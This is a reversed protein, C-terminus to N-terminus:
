DISAPTLKPALLQIVLIAILYASGAMAFIPTYNNHTLKLIFGVFTGFFMMAMAGGFAGIGVVSAVARRPFMDSPLTFLNCSWAQHLATAVSIMAIAAWINPAHSIFMIPAIGCAYLLMATKRARNQSWGLSIFKTPLWGGLVSGLTCVNYIILLPLGMKTISLGYRNFLYGPLWFLYFWWIPDTLLKGCLFAWTQRHPILHSWVIKSVPEIPDSNIFDLEARSVHTNEQPTSYVKLWTILWVLSFFGTILFAYRWGFRVVVFGVVFPMLTPGINTGSNFIGTAFSREKKPFWEATTKVAAPFNGAEGLGLLFRVMAFGIVAGSVTAIDRIWAANGIVPVHVLVRSLFQAASSLTRTIVPVTVLFHSMAAVSWISAALAYGRKTGVRDIVNGALLLGVAYACSFISVIVGYQVQTLGIGKIPDQLVPLLLALVQRDMYNLTTIALLLGCITWRYKTAIAIPQAGTSKAVAVEKEVVAM